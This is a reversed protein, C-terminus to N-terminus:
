LPLQAQRRYQDPNVSPLSFLPGTRATPRHEQEIITAICEQKQHIAWVLFGCNAVMLAWASWFGLRMLM